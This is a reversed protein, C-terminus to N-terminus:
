SEGICIRANGSNFSLAGSLDLHRLSVASPLAAGVAAAGQPGVGCGALDLERLSRSRGLASALTAAGAAGVDNDFLSLARLHRSVAMGETLAEADAPGLGACGLRLESLRASPARLLSALAAAADSPPPPAEAGAGSRRRRRSSGRGLDNFSLSLSALALPAPTGEEEEEGAACGGEAAAARAIAAVHRSALGTSTLDLRRLTARAAAGPRLCAALAEAARDDAGLANYALSLSSLPAPRPSSLLGRLLAEAGTASLGNSSLDLARLSISSALARGLAAAGADGHSRLSLSALAAANEALASGLAEVELPGFPQRGGGGGDDATPLASPVLTLAKVARAERTRLWSVLEMPESSGAAAAAPGWRLRLRLDSVDPLAAAARRADALGSASASVAASRLAPCSVRLRTVDSPSLLPHPAALFSQLSGGGGGGPASPSHQQEHAAARVAALVGAPTLASCAPACLDLSRLRAGAHRCLARLTDDIVPRTSDEFSLASWLANSTALRAWHRSVAACRGRELVPLHNFVLLLVEDPLSDIGSEADMAAFSLGSPNRSDAPLAGTPLAYPTIRIACIRRCPISLAGSCRPSFRGESGLQQPRVRRFSVLFGPLLVDSFRQSRLM